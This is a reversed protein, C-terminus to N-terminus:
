LHSADCVRFEHKSRQGRQIRIEHWDNHARVLLKGLLILLAVECAILVASVFLDFPSETDSSSASVISAVRKAPLTSKHVINDWIQTKSVATAATPYPKVEWRTITLWRAKSRTCFRCNLTFSSWNDASKRAFSNCIAPSFVRVSSSCRSFRSNSADTAHRLSDLASLSASAFDMFDNAPFTVNLGHYSFLSVSLLPNALSMVLATRSAPHAERAGEGIIRMNSLGRMSITSSGVPTSSTVVSSSVARDAALASQWPRLSSRPNSQWTLFSGSRFGPTTTQIFTLARGRPACPSALSRSSLFTPAILLLYVALALRIRM